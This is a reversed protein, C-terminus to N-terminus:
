MSPEDLCLGARTGLWARAGECVYVCARARALPFEWAAYM